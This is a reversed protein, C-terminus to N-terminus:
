LNYYFGWCKIGSYLIFISFAVISYVKRNGVSEQGCGRTGQFILTVGGVDLVLIFSLFLFILM